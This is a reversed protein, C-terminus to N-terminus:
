KSKKSSDATPKPTAKATTVAPADKKVDAAAPENNATAKFAVGEGDGANVVQTDQNTYGNGNQKVVDISKVQDETVPAQQQVPATAQAPPVYNNDAIDANLESLKVTDGVEYGAQVLQPFANLHEETITTTPEEGIQATLLNDQQQKFLGDANKKAIADKIATVYNDNIDADRANQVNAKVAVGRLVLEMNANGKYDALIKEAPVAEISLYLDEVKKQFISVEDMSPNTDTNIQQNTFQVPEGLFSTVPEFQGAPKVDSNTVTGNLVNLNNILRNLTSEIQIKRTQGEPFDLVSAAQEKAASLIEVVALNAQQISEM